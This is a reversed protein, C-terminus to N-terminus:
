GHLVAENVRGDNRVVAEVTQSRGDLTVIDGRRFIWDRNRAHVHRVLGIVQQYEGLREVGDRVVLRVPASPNPPRQVNAVVGLVDFVVTDATSFADVIVGEAEGAAGAPSV